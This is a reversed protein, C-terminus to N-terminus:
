RQAIQFGERSEALLQSAAWTSSPVSKEEDVLRRRRYNRAHIDLDCTQTLVIVRVSITEVVIKPERDLDWFVTWPVPCEEFIDGQDLPETDLPSSFIM